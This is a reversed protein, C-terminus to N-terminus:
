VPESPKRCAEARPGYLIDIIWNSEYHPGRIAITVLLKLVEM